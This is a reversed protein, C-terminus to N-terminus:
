KRFSGVSCGNSNTQLPCSGTLKSGAPQNKIGLPPNLWSFSSHFGTLRYSIRAFITERNEAPEEGGSIMSDMTQCLGGTFQSLRRAFFLTLLFMWVLACATLLVGVALM